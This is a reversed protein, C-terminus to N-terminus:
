RGTRRAAGRSRGSRLTRAALARPADAAKIKLAAHRGGYPVVCGALAVFEVRRMAKGDGDIVLLAVLQDEGMGFHRAGIFAVADARLQHATREVVRAPATELDHRGAAEHDIEHTTM